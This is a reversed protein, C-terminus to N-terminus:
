ASSSRDYDPRRFDPSRHPDFLGMLDVEERDLVRAYISQFLYRAMDYSHFRETYRRGARGLELRRKPDTVLRHLAEYVTEPSASVVPCEGLFSFLRFLRAQSPDADLNCIVPLGSAMGEIAALGYGPVILQDAHIDVEQLLRRVEQNTVGEVLVLEVELGDSRLRAVAEVIFSTGKAGRHNPAHLVRVLGNKGDYDRREPPPAWETLDICIMNGVPVDWRPLGGFTFGVVVADAVRSWHEVRQAIDRERRAHRPYDLLLANRVVHDSIRSYMAVDGGFPIVVTRVGAMRLLRAELRWVPTNWLMGGLFSIHIVGARRLTFACAAYPGLLGKLRAGVLDPVLDDYHLDFDERRNIPYVEEVLTLSTWGAQRLAASWYKINTVPVPGWVLTRSRRRPLAAVAILPPVAVAAVLYRLVQYLLARM